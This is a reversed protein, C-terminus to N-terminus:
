DAGRLALDSTESEFTAWGEGLWEEIANLATAVKDEVIVADEEAAGENGEFTTAVTLPLAVVPHQDM